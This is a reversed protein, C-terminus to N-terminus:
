LDDAPGEAANGGQERMAVYHHKARGDTQVTLAYKTSGKALIALAKDLRKRGFQLTPETSADTELDRWVIGPHSLMYAGLAEADRTNRDNTIARKKQEREEIVEPNEEPNACEVMEHRAHQLSLWFEGKSMGAGRNKPVRVHVLNPFDKPSTLVLMTQAWYEAARAEASAAMPNADAAWRENAYGARSMEATCWVTMRHNEHAFRLAVLNAEIVERVTPADQGAASRVTHLSDAFFFAPAGDARAWAALDATAADITWSYDYFRLPLGQLTAEIEDLTSANRDNMEDSSFGFLQAFRATVDEPAEDVAMFGVHFGFDALRTLLRYAIGVTIYTKGAGPAGVTLVRRPMLLGGDCLENDLTPFGLDIRALKGENRWTQIVGSFTLAEREVAKTKRIREYDANVQAIIEEASQTGLKCAALGSQFMHGLRRRQGLQAVREIADRVESEYAGEASSTVIVGLERADDTRKTEDTVHDQIWARLTSPVSRKGARHLEVLGQWLRQRATSFDDVRLSSTAEAILEPHETLGFVVFREANEDSAPPITCETPWDRTHGNAGNRPQNQAETM